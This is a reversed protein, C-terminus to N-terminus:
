GMASFGGGNVRVRQGVAPANQREFTRVNGNDMRVRVVYVTTARSHKEIEHGAVGGGVAGIVTMAKRGNGKGMQNGILGGAVGGVVAGVGTGEGKRKVPEVSEIVGCTACVAAVKRAPAAREPAPAQAAAQQPAERAPKAADDVVAEKPGLSQTAALPQPLPATGAGVAGQQSSVPRWALTAALSLGAVALAGAVIWAGYPKLAARPAATATVPQQQVADM